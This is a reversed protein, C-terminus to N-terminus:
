GATPGARGAAGTTAETSATCPSPRPPDALLGHQTPATPRRSGPGLAAPAGRRVPLRGPAGPPGPIGHGRSRAIGRWRPRGQSGQPHLRFSAAIRPRLCDHGPQPPPTRGDHAAAGVPLKCSPCPQPPPPPGTAGPREQACARLRM